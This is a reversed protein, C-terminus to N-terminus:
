IYVNYTVDVEHKGIYKIHCLFIATKHMALSQLLHCTPLVVDAMDLDQLLLGVSFKGFYVFSAFM